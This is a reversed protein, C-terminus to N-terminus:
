FHPSAYLIHAAVFYM